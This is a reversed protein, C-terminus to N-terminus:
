PSRRPLTTYVPTQVELADNGQGALEFVDITSQDPITVRRVIGVGTITLLGFLGRVVNMAFIGDANSEATIDGAVYGYTTHEQQASIPSFRVLVGKKYDGGADIFTGTIRCVNDNGIDADGDPTVSTSAAALVFVDEDQTYATGSVTFSWVIQYQGPDAPTWTVTYVGTTTNTVDSGTITQILTSALYVKATPTSDANYNTVSGEGDTFQITLTTTIAEGTVRLAM